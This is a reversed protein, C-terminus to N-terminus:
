EKRTWRIVHLGDKLDRFEYITGDSRIFARAGLGMLESPPTLEIRGISKYTSDIVALDVPLDKDYYIRIYINDNRDIQFVDAVKHPYRCINLTLTDIRRIEGASVKDVLINIFDKDYSIKSERSSKSIATESQYYYGKSNVPDRKQREISSISNNEIVATERYNGFVIRGNRNKIWSIDQGRNNITFRYSDGVEHGNSDLKRIINMQDLDPKIFYVNESDDVAFRLVYLEKKYILKGTRDIKRFDKSPYALYVNEDIDVYQLIPGWFGGQEDIAYPLEQDNDWGWPLTFLETSIYEAKLLGILCAFAMITRLTKKMLLGM